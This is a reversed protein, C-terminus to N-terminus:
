FGRTRWRTNPLRPSSRAKQTSVAGGARGAIQHFERARLRRMRHGDYKTLATLLVTHIPVNIGVGLTDTGCIVPLLGQQALKEVLLRYRPLMGAHHVGVGALLLRQLIKGFATTFRAGHLAEKIAARQEKGAVGYSALSQATSLAADQAFHVIYIPAEGARLALEVTGEIPTLVYEYSLPVPRQANLVLDVARGSREQLRKAIDSVDGLTASM